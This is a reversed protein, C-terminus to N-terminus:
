WTFVNMESDLAMLTTGEEVPTCLGRSTLVREAWVGGRCATVFGCWTALERYIYPIQPRKHMNTSHGRWFDKKRGGVPQLWVRM